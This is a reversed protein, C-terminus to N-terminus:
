RKLIDADDKNLTVRTKRGFVETSIIITNSNTETVEGVFDKFPGANIKVTDDLEFKKNMVNWEELNKVEVVKKLDKGSCTGVYTTIFPNATLKEYILTSQKYRLFLYGSYLPVRKKRKANNKLKFEKTQTPYLIEQIETIEKLFTEVFQFRHPKIVWIHWQLVPDDM